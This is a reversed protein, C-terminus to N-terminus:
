CCCRREVVVVGRLVVVVAEVFRVEPVIGTGFGMYNSNILSCANGEADVACCYVTDGGAATRPPPARAIVGDDAVAACAREPDFLAARRAAARVKSLLQPLLPHPPPAGSGEGAGGEEGGGGGAAGGGGGGAAAGGDAGIAAPDCCFALADAFALRVAEAMSHLRAASGPPKAALEGDAELINLAMLAVLGQCPPPVEWITAGRYDTSIPAVELTRHAALDGHSLVGGRSTVAEVIADAVPGTYIAANTILPRTTTISQYLLLRTNELSYIFLLSLAHMHM